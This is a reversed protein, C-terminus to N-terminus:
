LIIIFVTSLSLSMSDKLESIRLFNPTYNIGIKPKFKFQKMLM